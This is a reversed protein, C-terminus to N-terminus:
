ACGFVTDLEYIHGAPGLQLSTATRTATGPAAALACATLAVCHPARPSLPSVVPGCCAPPAEGSLGRCCVAAGAPQKSHSGAM